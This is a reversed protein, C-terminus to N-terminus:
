KDNKIRLFILRYIIIYITPLFYLINGNKIIYYTYPETDIAFNTVQVCLFNDLTCFNHILIYSIIQYSFLYLFTYILIKFHLSRNIFCFILSAIVINLVLLVPLIMLMFFPNDHEWFAAIAITLSIAHTLVNLLFFLKKKM